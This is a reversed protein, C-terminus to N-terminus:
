QNSDDREEEGKRHGAMMSFLMVLNRLQINLGNNVQTLGNLSGLTVWIYKEPDYALEEPDTRIIVNRNQEHYFRGGEESMIVDTLVNKRKELADFFATAVSDRGSEFGAEEQVSPGLEVADHCGIEPKIQVLVEYRGEQVRCLLGFTAM